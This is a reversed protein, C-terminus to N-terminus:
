VSEYAKSVDLKIAMSFKNGTKKQNMSHSLDHGILINDAILRGKIFSNQEEGIIADMYPQLRLTLIKAIIKYLVNCLSIPRLDRISELQDM